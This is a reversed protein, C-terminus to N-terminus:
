RQRFVAGFSLLLQEIAHIQNDLEEWEADQAAMEDHSRTESEYVADQRTQLRARLIRLRNFTEEQFADEDEEEAVSSSRMLAPGTPAPGFGEGPALTNFRPLAPGFGEGPALTNFRSLTPESSPGFRAWVGPSAAGTGMGLVLSHQPPPLTALPRPAPTASREAAAGAVYDVCTTCSCASPNVFAGLEGRSNYSHALPVYPLPTFSESATLSTM